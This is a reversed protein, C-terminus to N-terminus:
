IMQLYLVSLLVNIERNRRKVWYQYSLMNSTFILLKLLPPQNKHFPPPGKQGGSDWPILKSGQMRGNRSFYALASILIHVIQFQTLIQFCTHACENRQKYSLASRTLSSTSEGWVFSVPKQLVRLLPQNLPEQEKSALSQIYRSLFLPVTDWVGISLHDKGFDSSTTTKLTKWYLLM